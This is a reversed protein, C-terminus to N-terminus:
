RPNDTGQRQLRGIIDRLGVAVPGDKDSGVLKLTQLERERAERERKLAAKERASAKALEDQAQAAIAKAEEANHEATDKAVTLDANLKKNEEILGDVYFYLGAVIAVAIAVASLKLILSNM